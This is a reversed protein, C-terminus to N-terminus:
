DHHDKRSHQLVVLQLDLIHLPSKLLVVHDVPDHLVDPLADCRLLNTRARRSGNDKQLSPRDHLNLVLYSEDAEM